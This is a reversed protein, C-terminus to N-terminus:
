VKFFSIGPLYTSFPPPRPLATYWRSTGSLSTTQCPRKIVCPKDTLCSFGLCKDGLRVKFLTDFIDYFFPFTPLILILM